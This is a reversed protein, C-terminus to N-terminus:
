PDPEAPVFVDPVPPCDEARYSTCTLRGDDSAPGDRVEPDECGRAMAALVMVVPVVLLLRGVKRGVGAVKAAKEPGGSREWSRLALVGALVVLGVFM